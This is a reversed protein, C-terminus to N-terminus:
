FQYCKIKKLNQKSSGGREKHLRDRGEGKRISFGNIKLGIYADAGSLKNKTFFSGVNDSGLYLWGLRVALGVRLSQWDNLVVPLSFSFWRKEYRPVLALTSTRRLSHKLLPLRQVGVASCYFDPAVQVDFQASLGTPLGMVFTNGQLSALSDGLLLQSLVRTYGRADDARIANGDVSLISDLRLIHQESGPKFHLFGLDLLSVGARWRYGEGDDSPSAWSMGLDIGAGTGTVDFAQNQPNDSDLLNRSLGFEWTPNNFIATDNVGPTYQFVLNSKAYAGAHGLLLKPSIGWAIEVDGDTNLHSYHLGIESWTMAQLQLPRIDITQGTEIQSFQPYYFVSPVRYASFDGRVGTTLGLVHNEGLRFSFGPGGVLAQSVARIRRNNNYYHLIIADPPAPREPSLDSIAVINDTNRLAHQLSTNELYAYNNEFFYGANFLSVEWNHPMFATNAPNLGAAYIGSYRELRMGLQEQAFSPFASLLIGSLLIPLRSVRIIHM